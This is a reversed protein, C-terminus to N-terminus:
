QKVEKKINYIRGEINFYDSLSVHYKEMVLRSGLLWKQLCFHRSIKWFYQCKKYLKCQMIMPIARETKM